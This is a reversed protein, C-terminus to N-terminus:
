DAESGKTIIDYEVSDIDLGTPLWLNVEYEGSGGAPIDENVYSYNTAVPLGSEKDYLTVVVIVSEMDADTENLVMGTFTASTDDIEHEDANEDITLETLDYSSPYVWYYDVWIHYSAAVEDFYGDTYNVVSWNDVDYPLTEEPAISYFPLYGSSVDIVNGDEDLLAAIMSVNLTEDAYNTIEGVLHFDDFQDMYNEHSESFEFDYYNAQETVEADVYLEYNDIDVDDPVTISVRFPGSDDPDIYHMNNGSGEGSILNGDVDFVAGAIRNVQAPESGNNFVEGTIHVYGYDDIVTVVNEISVDAPENNSSSNGVITAVYRDPDTLDEGDIYMAFPSTTGPALTYLDTYATDVYISTDNSDFVEVEIEIGDVGRDTNNIVLGTIIIYGGDTKWNNLQGIGLVGEPVDGSNGMDDGGNDGGSDEKTPPPAATETPEPTSTPEPTATPEPTNTPVPTDTPVPTNTPEPTPTPQAGLNCALISLVIATVFLVMSLKRIQM